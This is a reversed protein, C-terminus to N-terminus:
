RYRRASVALERDLSRQMTDQVQRLGKEPTIRLSQIQNAVTNLERHYENWVGTQPAAWARPLSGLEAFLRIYPNPHQAWFEDTVQRLPSHKRQGLCLQEMVPQTQVYKIFEWAEEPHKSAAPIVLNDAEANGVGRLEPRDAPAPFPAAGWPMGDAFKKIFNYMWVGQIQMALRSSLFPNEATGFNGFGSRFRKIEDVGIKKSYSAVWNYARLNEPSGTTIRNGEILQGGFVFGWGYSWWDPEGPLFGLQLLRKESAPVDPLYGTRVEKKGDPLTVEWKTLKEAMEDLQELTEPPKEPDLGAERFLRKNWHLAVSAPTTPLSWLRGRHVNLDYYREVYDARELGDKQALETLDVLAGKDAYAPVRATYFGAVDPPNGGASAVLLKTEIRSIVVMEVEIPRYGPEAKARAKQSANFGDVVRGMADGEFDTWKEWYVIRRVGATNGAQPDSCASGFLVLACVASALRM